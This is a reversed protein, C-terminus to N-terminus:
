SPKASLLVQCYDFWGHELSYASNITTEYMIVSGYVVGIIVGFTHPPPAILATILELNSEHICCEGDLKYSPPFKYM